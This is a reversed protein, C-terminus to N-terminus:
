RLAVLVPVLGRGSQFSALAKGIVAGFARYPDSAKMAHGPTPSATLLDGVKIPAYDADVKCCVKGILAVTTRERDSTRKDLVIAPRYEGAGSVVGAVRKDYAECSERITGGDEFVVVTGPELRQAEAVDFQEACDAGTLTIDNTVAINNVGTISGDIEVDGQFKGAIGGNTNIGCVGAANKSDTTGRVGDFGSGIGVVGAGAAGSSVGSLQGLVGCNIPPSDTQKPSFDIPGVFGWAATVAGKTPDPLTDPPKSGPGVNLLGTVTTPLIVPIPKMPNM